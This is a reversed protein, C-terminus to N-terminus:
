SVMKEKNLNLYKILLLIVLKDELFVGSGFKSTLKDCISFNDDM